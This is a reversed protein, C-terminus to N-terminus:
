QSLLPKRASDAAFKSTELSAPYEPWIPITAAEHPNRAVQTGFAKSPGPTKQVHGKSESTGGNRLGSRGQVAGRECQGHQGGRGGHRLGEGDRRLLAARRLLDGGLAHRQGLEGFVRGVRIRDLTAIREPVNGAHEEFARPAPGLQPSHIEFLNVVRVQDVRPLQQHELFDVAHGSQFESGGDAAHAVGDFQRRRNAAFRGFRGGDRRDRHIQDRREEGVRHDEVGVLHGGGRADHGHLFVPHQQLPAVGGVDGAVEAVRAAPLDETLGLRQDIGVGLLDKAVLCAVDAGGIALLVAFRPRARLGAAQADRRGERDRAVLFVHGDAITERGGRHAVERREHRM